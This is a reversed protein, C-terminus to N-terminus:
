GFRKAHQEDCPTVKGQYVVWGQIAMMDLVWRAGVVIFGPRWFAPLLRPSIKMTPPRSGNVLIISALYAGPEPCGLRITDCTMGAVVGTGAMLQAAETMDRANRAARRLKAVFKLAVLYSVKFVEEHHDVLALAAAKNNPNKKVFYEHANYDNM